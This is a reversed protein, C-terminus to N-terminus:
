ARLRTFLVKLKEESKQGPEDEVGSNVDLIAAGTHAAEVINDPSLGGALVFPEQNNQSITKWDFASGTGGSQNGIKSDLLWLDVGPWDPLLIDVTQENSVAFVKWIQCDKPLTERLTSIYEESENGHLQVAALNLRHAINSVDEVIHNQFVGVYQNPLENIIENAVEVSVFRKSDPVMILGMYSVPYQNVLKAQEVSTIGCIKVRGYALQNVASSLDKEAMLSSGVLYGDVLPNLRMLDQYKYIGSESIIIGDFDPHQKILPVLKETTALDTSLDRLNRNNIGIIRANLALARHTEQENSVETLVDLGLEDAVNHLLVYEDDDLVSLMLLIADANYFRALYVQYENIFFDKNLVPQAVESTVKKLYEYTGQFYKEDTLVSFCSAETSYAEIIEDLDFPERILGKSPSAKKCEFIFGATEASLATEFSKTSPSLLHKFSSLPQEIERQAVETRKHEVITALVNSM